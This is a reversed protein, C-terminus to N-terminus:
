LSQSLASYSDVILLSLSMGVLGLFSVLLWGHRSYLQRCQTPCVRVHRNTRARFLFHSSSDAGFDAPLFEAHVSESTLLDFGLELLGPDIRSCQV